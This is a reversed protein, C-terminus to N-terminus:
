RLTRKKGKVGLLHHVKQKHLEILILAYLTLIVCLPLFILFVSIFIFYSEQTRQEDFKPARNFTCHLQNDQVVLRITYFYTGHLRMAVIWIIPIIVSCVKPTIMPPRFSLVVGRYRDIAMVVLSQISVATSIDQFFYVLKCLAM